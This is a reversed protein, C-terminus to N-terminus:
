QPRRKDKTEEQKQKTKYQLAQIAHSAVRAERNTSTSKNILNISYCFFFFINILFCINIILENQNSQTEINEM